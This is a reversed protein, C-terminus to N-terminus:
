KLYDFRYIRGPAGKKGENSVYMTGDKAFCIGEPQCHIEKELKEVHLIKGEPSLIGMMKGKSSLVYINGTRPNVAIGSSAFAFDEPNESFHEKMKKFRHVHQNNELYYLFDKLRLTYIPKEILKRTKLDFAYISKELRLDESPDGVAKCCMLLRENKADYGLGEVDYTKNLPTTFKITQQHDGGFDHVEYIKGNSKTVFVSAGVMEVGEYDGEKYFNYDREVEGTTKNIIFIEGDEDQVAVLKSEDPTLSLGSIEKLAEPLELTAAPAQMNYHLRFGHTEEVTKILIVPESPQAFSINMLFLLFFPLLYKM